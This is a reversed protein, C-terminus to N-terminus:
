KKKIIKLAKDVSGGDAFPEKGDQKWWPTLSGERDDKYLEHNHFQQYFHEPDLGPKRM